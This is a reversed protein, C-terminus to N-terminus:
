GYPSFDRTMSTWANSVAERFSGLMRKITELSINARYSASQIRELKEVDVGSAELSSSPHDEGGERPLVHPMGKALASAAIGLLPQALSEAAELPLTVM